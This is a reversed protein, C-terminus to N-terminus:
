HAPSNYKKHKKQSLTSKQWARLIKQQASSLDAAETGIILRMPKLFVDLSLQEIPKLNAGSHFQHHGGLSTKMAKMRLIVQQNISPPVFSTFEDTYATQGLATQLKEAAALSRKPVFTSRSPCGGFSPEDRRRLHLLLYGLRCLKFISGEGWGLIKKRAEVRIM